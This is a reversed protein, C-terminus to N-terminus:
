TDVLHALADLEAARFIDDDLPVYSSFTDNEEDDDTWVKKETMAEPILQTMM